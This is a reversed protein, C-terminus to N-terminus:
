QQAPRRQALRAEELTIGGTDSWDHGAIRVDHPCYAWKGEHITLTDSASGRLQQHDASVCRFHIVARKEQM